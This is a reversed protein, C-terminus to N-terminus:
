LEENVIDIDGVCSLFADPLEIIEELGQLYLTAENNKNVIYKTRIFNAWPMIREILDRSIAPQLPCNNLDFAQLKFCYIVNPDHDNLIIAKAYEKRSMRPHQRYYKYADYNFIWGLLRYIM